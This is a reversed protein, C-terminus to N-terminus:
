NNTGYIIEKVDFLKLKKNARKTLSNTSFIKTISNNNLLRKNHKNKEFHGCLIYIQKVGLNKLHNVINLNTDGTSIIDDVIICKSDPNLNGVIEHKIILGTDIDRVKDFYVFNKGIDNYRNLSGKDTLVITDNNSDFGIEDFVQQKIKKVFSIQKANNFMTTKCHPECITLSKLNLNNFIEAVYNITDLEDRGEHDMRQYPLYSLILDISINHSEYYKLILLLEFISEENNFLIEVSSNKALDCLQSNLLKLEGSSFRKFTVKQKNIYM